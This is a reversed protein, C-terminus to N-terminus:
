WGAATVSGEAHMAHALQAFIQGSETMLMSFSYGHFPTSIVTAFSSQFPLSAMASAATLAPQLHKKPYGM